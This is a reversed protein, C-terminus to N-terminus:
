RIERVRADGPPGLTVVWRGRGPSPSHSNAGDVTAQWRGQSRSIVPVGLSFLSAGLVNKTAVIRPPTDRGAPDEVWQVYLRSTVHEYGSSVVVLRYTGSRGAYTWEGGRVVAVLDPNLAAVEAEERALWRDADQASLVSCALLLAVAVHRPRTM